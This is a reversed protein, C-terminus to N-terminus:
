IEVKSLEKWQIKIIVERFAHRKRLVAEKSEPTDEISKTADPLSEYSYQASQYFKEWIIAYWIFTFANM